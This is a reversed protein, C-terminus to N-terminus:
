SSLRINIRADKQLSKSAAKKAKDAINKKGYAPKLNGADFLKLIEKEEIDLKIKKKAIM